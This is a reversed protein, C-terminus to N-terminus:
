RFAPAPETKKQAQKIFYYTAGLSIATTLLMLIARGGGGGGGGNSTGGSQTRRAGKSAAELAAQPPSAVARDISARLRADATSAAEAAGALPPLAATLLATVLALSVYRRCSM